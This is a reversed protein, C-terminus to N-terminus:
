CFNRRIKFLSKRSFFFDSCWFFFVTLNCIIKKEYSSFRRCIYMLMWTYFSLPFVLKVNDKLFSFIFVVICWVWFIQRNKEQSERPFWVFTFHLLIWCFKRRSCLFISFSPILFLFLFFFGDSESWTWWNQVDKKKRKRKVVSM